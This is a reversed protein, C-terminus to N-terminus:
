LWWQQHPALYCVPVSNESQFNVYYLLILLMDLWKFHKSSFSAYVCLLNQQMTYWLSEIKLVGHFMLRMAHYLFLMNTRGLESTQQEWFRLHLLLILFKFLLKTNLFYIKRVILNNILNQKCRERYTTLFKFKLTYKLQFWQLGREM